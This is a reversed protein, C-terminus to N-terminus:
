SSKEANKPFYFKMSDKPFIFNRLRRDDPLNPTLNVFLFGFPESVADQYAELFYKPLSPFLRRGIYSIMSKDFPLNFIIMGLMNISVTRLSKIFPNHLSIIISANLHRSKRVFWETVYTSGKRSDFEITMDDLFILSPENGTITNDLEDFSTVFIIGPVSKKLLEFIPEWYVYLVVVKQIKSDLIKNRNKIINVVLNTKGAGSNGIICLRTPHNLTCDIVTDM